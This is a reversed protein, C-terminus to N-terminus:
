ESVTDGSIWVAPRVGIITESGGHARTGIDGQSSYYAPGDDSMGPSRLWWACNGSENTYAGQSLAYATPSTLTEEKSLYRKAESASLLFVHDETDKGVTTGYKLDDGNRLDSTLIKKQESATFATHYFDDNLWTRLSSDDWTAPDESFPRSDLAHVSLLLTKGDKEDLVYWKIKENQWNGFAVTKDASSKHNKETESSTVSTDQGSSCGALLIMAM